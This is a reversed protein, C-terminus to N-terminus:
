IGLEARLERVLVVIEDWSLPVKKKSIPAKLGGLIQLALQQYGVLRAVEVALEPLNPVEEGIESALFELGDEASLVKDPEPEIHNESLYEPSIIGDQCFAGAIKNRLVKRERAIRKQAEEASKRQSDVVVRQNLDSYRGLVTELLAEVGGEIRPDIQYTEETAAEPVLASAECFTVDLEMQVGDPTTVVTAGSPFLRQKWEEATAAEPTDHKNVIVLLPKGILCEHQITNGFVETCENVAIEEKASGDIVFMVGHVDHYYQGWIDRIKKGGGLDYFKVKVDDSLKMVVPRFGVTPRVKDLKGQLRNIISTKGAGGLGFVALQITKEEKKVAQQPKEVPVIPPNHVEFVATSSFAKGSDTPAGTAQASSPRDISQGSADKRGNISSAKAARQASSSTPANDPVPFSGDAMSKLETKMFPIVDDPQEVALRNVLSAVVPGISLALYLKLEKRSRNLAKQGPIVEIELKPGARTLFQIMSEPIASPEPQDLLLHTICASIIPDVKELFYNYTDNVKKTLRKSPDRNGKIQRVAKIGYPTPTARTVEM